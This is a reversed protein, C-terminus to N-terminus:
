SSGGMIKKASEIFKKNIERRGFTVRACNELLPQNSCDRIAIGDKLMGQILTKVPVSPRFLLFNTESPFVAAGLKKLEASVWEREENAMRATKRIFDDDALAEIAVKESFRNLRFPANAAAMPEIVEKSGICFGVRLGPLAYAKSLTRLIILNPLKKSSSICSGGESFDCYAEDLVVIADSEQVVRIIDQRKFSNGTPNNPSSLFIMKPDSSLILDVDLQFTKKRLPCEAIQAGAIKAYMSYMEFTPVPVAVRDRPGVYAKVALDIMEDSGNGVIVQGPDVGFKGGIAARLDDAFISPYESLMDFDFEDSVKEAVPNPMFLNSNDNMRIVGPPLTRYSPPNLRKISDRALSSPKL